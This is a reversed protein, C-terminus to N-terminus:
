RQVAIPVSRSDCAHTCAVVKNDLQLLSPRLFLYGEVRYRAYTVASDPSYNRSTYSSAPLQIKGLSGEDPRQRITSSQHVLM